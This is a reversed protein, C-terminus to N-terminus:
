FDDFSDDVFRSRLHKAVRSRTESFYKSLHSSIKKKLKLVLNPNMENTSSNEPHRISVFDTLENPSCRPAFELSDLLSDSCTASHRSVYMPRITCWLKAPNRRVLVSRTLSHTLTHSSVLTALKMLRRIRHLSRYTITRWTILGRFGSTRVDSFLHFMAERM